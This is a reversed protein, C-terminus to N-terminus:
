SEVVQRAAIAIDFGKVVDFGHETALQFATVCGVSPQLWMVKAGLPVVQNAVIGAHESEPRYVNIIDIKAHRENLRRFVLYGQEGPQPPIIDSSDVGQPPEPVVEVVSYRGPLACFVKFGAVVLTRPVSPSAWDVLLISSASRLIENPDSM